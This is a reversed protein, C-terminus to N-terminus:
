INYTLLESKSVHHIEQATPILPLQHWELSDIDGLAGPVKLALVSSLKSLFKCAWNGIEKASNLDLASDVMKTALCKALDVVRQGCSPNVKVVHFM